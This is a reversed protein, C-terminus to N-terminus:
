FVMGYRMLQFVVYSNDSDRAIIVTFNLKNSYFFLQLGIWKILFLFVFLVDVKSLM